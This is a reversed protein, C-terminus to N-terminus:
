GGRASRRRLSLQRMVMLWGIVAMVTESVITAMALGTIGFRPTLAVMGVVLTTIGCLEFVIREVPRGNAVLITGGALRLALSPAAAAIWHMLSATEAFAPGFLHPLLPASLLLAVTCVLGWGFALMAITVVLRGPEQSRDNANRFLRPQATLLLGIVPLVAAGLVRVTTSYIGADHSGVTRLAIIKDIESPNMAIFHMAAYSTGDRLEVTSPSRPRWDLAIHKGTLLLCSVVAAIAAVFQLETYALLRYETAVAFCPVIALVRVGLPLWLLFQSLPVQEYSQLSFSCLQAYPVLLLESAGVLVLGLLPVSAGHILASGAVVYPVLLLAGIILTMPWAYRWVDATAGAARSGRSLMIYGAGLTPVTGLLVALSSIAAFDGYVGPGLLRTLLVLTTAQTLLRLVLMVSTRFANRALKGNM